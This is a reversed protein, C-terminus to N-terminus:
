LMVLFPVASVSYNLSVSASNQPKFFYLCILHHQQMKIQLLQYKIDKIASIKAVCKGKAFTIFVLGNGFYPHSKIKAKLLCNKREQRKIFMIEPLLLKM